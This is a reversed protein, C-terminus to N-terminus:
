AHERLMKRLRAATAKGAFDEMRGRFRREAALGEAARERALRALVARTPAPLAAQEAPSQGRLYQQQVQSDVIRGLVNQLKRLVAVVAEVESEPYLARFAELLYRLKKATKRLEHLEESYAGSGAARGQRLLRRYARWTADGAAIAIVGTPRTDRSELFARWDACFNRFRPAALAELLRAHEFARAARLRERFPELAVREAADLGAGFRELDLLFVDLDRRPGTVRSLWAFEGRFRRLRAAPLVEALQTVLTRSRRCSIRFDHLFEADLDAEIGPLNRDMLDLLFRLVRKLARRADTGRVIRLQLRTSYDGPRRRLQRMAADFIGGAPVAPALDALLAAADAAYGRLARIRLALAASRGRGTRGSKFLQEREVFALVKGARNRLEFSAVRLDVSGIELLARDRVLRALEAQMPGAPWMAPRAPVAACAEEILPGTGHVSCLRARAQPPADFELVLGARWLRWDFTDFYHRRFRRPRSPILTCRGRVAHLFERFQKLTELRRQLISGKM